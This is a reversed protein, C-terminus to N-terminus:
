EILGERLAYAVAAVRNAVGIKAYVNALHTKVTSSSLLLASAIEPGALGDAALRLVEIERTTLPWRSMGPRRALFAGLERGVDAFVRLRREGAEAPEATYLVVVALVRESSVAPVALASRIGDLAAAMRDLSAAEEGTSAPALPVAGEWARGALGRGRPVETEELVRELTARDVSPLSWLVRLVLVEGDPIWLAAAPLDLAGAVEALLREAGPAFSEWAALSGAVARRLALEREASRQETVDLVFGLLRRAHEEGGEGVPTCRLHRISGDPRLIRYELPEREGARMAELELQVREVDAPHMRDFLRQTIPIFTDPEYGMLRFLNESWALTDSDLDWVWIGIGALQEGTDWLTGDRIAAALVQHVLSQQAGDSASM